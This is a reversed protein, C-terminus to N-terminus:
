ESVVISCVTTWGACALVAYVHPKRLVRALMALFVVGGINALSCWRRTVRSSTPSRRLLNIVGLFCLALGSGAFWLTEEGGGPKFVPALGTHVVGATLIGYSAVADSRQLTTSTIHLNMTDEKANRAESVPESM